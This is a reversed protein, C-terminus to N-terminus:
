PHEPLYLNPFKAIRTSPHPHIFVYHYPIKNMPVLQFKLEILHTAEPVNPQQFLRPWIPSSSNGLIQSFNVMFWLYPCYVLYWERQVSHLFFCSSHDTLSYIPVFTYAGFFDSFITAKTYTLLSISSSTFTHVLLGLFVCIKEMYRQHLGLTSTSLRCCWISFVSKHSGLGSTTMYGDLCWMIGYSEIPSCQCHSRCQGLGDPRWAPLEKWWVSPIPVQHV